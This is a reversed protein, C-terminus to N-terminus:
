AARSPPAEDAEENLVVEPTVPTVPTVPAVPTETLAAARARKPVRRNALPALLERDLTSDELAASARVLFAYERLSALLAQLAARGRREAPESELTYTASKSAEVLGALAAKCAKLHSACGLAVLMEALAKERARELLQACRVDLDVAAGNLFTTDYPYLAPYARRAKDGLADGIPLHTHGRLVTALGSFSRRVSAMSGRVGDIALPDDEQEKSASVRALTDRDRKVAGLALAAREPLDKEKALELIGRSVVLAQNITFAAFSIEIKM